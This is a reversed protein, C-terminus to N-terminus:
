ACLETQEEVWDQFHIDKGQKESYMLFSGSDVSGIIHKLQNKYSFDCGNIIKGNVNVYLDGVVDGCDISIKGPEACDKAYGFNRGENLYLRPNTNKDEDRTEAFKLTSLYLDDFSLGHHLTHFEDMSVAIHSVENDSCFMWWEMVEIVFKKSNLVGNTAIYFNGVDIHHKDALKRIESIIHVAMQPEGGTFTISGIYNIQSFLTEIYELKLDKNQADGRLCHDCKLNCRRTVEIILSQINM